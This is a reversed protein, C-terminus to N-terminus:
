TFSLKKFMLIIQGRCYSQKFMKTSINYKKGFKEKYKGPQNHIHTLSIKALIGDSGLM